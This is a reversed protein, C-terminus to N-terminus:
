APAISCRCRPHAPPSESGDPWAVGIPRPGAEENALCVPCAGPETLWRWRTVGARTYTDRAAEASARSVETTAVMAAWQPDGLAARLANALQRATLGARRAGALIRALARHRGDAIGRVVSAARHRFGDLATAADATLTREAGETDGVKWPFAAAAGDLLAHAASAGVAWAEGWTAALATATTATLDIGKSALWAAALTLAIEGAASDDPETDDPQDAKVLERALWQQALSDWDAAGTLATNLQAAWYAATDEDREWGPWAPLEGAKPDADDGPAFVVATGALDPADAKTVTEFRFPRAPDPNRRAWRTYAALEAKVAEAREAGKEPASAPKKAGNGGAAQKPGNQPQEAGEEPGEKQELRDPIRNGNEDVNRGTIIPQVAEGTPAMDLAGELFVVGSQTQVYPMDAEKFAYRPLGMRDRDENLTMRGSAVRLRAVEDASAEDEEELGLIRFELEQPMGLHRRSVGTVLRQLWRYTPMTAIREKVDAQGEHYGTSGLGGVETHGLETITTDFHAALQKLLFLDYEPRYREAIDPISELEFGPPLVKMRHREATQGSWTDNLYTEYEYVQQPSWGSEATNRLFGTPVTGDTYEGRIWSRRRLWVDLDELCQEVASHGYVTEARVNRRKYILTDSAYGNLVQGNEDADAIFEGRPFGWLIQQYAPNPPLPKGGRWDRLVKITSGDLIEMSYLQGGWTRRPYIAIADLVFHEELLKAVWDSWEEDQTPDPREWFRTCRAIEPALRKRLDREVDARAQGPSDLAAQQVADKTITIAWDLTAIESKRIEICRRPIGGAGAADRLVKWPVLKDSGTTLNTSVDYETFRPEPRGSDPRVPDIAAPYLPVGPGFAVQPDTRPLPNFGGATQPGAMATALGAVQEATYTVAGAGPQQAKTLATRRRSRSRNRSM